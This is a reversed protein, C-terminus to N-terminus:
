VPGDCLVTEGSIELRRTSVDENEFGCGVSQMDLRVCALIIDLLGFADFPVLKGLGLTLRSPLTTHARPRVTTSSHEATCRRRLHPKATPGFM